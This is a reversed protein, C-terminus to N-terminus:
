SGHNFLIYSDVVSEQGRGCQGCSSGHDLGVTTCLLGILWRAKLRCRIFLRSDPGRQISNTPRRHLIMNTPRRHRTTMRPRASPDNMRELTGTRQASALLSHIFAGDASRGDCLSWGHVWRRAGVHHNTPPAPTIELTTKPPRRNSLPRVQDKGVVM